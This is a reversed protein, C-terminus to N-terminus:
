NLPSNDTIMANTQEGSSAADGARDPDVLWVQPLNEIIDVALQGREILTSIAANVDSETFGHQLCDFYFVEVLVPLRSGIRQEFLQICAAESVTLPRNLKKVCIGLSM